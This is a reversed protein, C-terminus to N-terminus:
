YRKSYAPLAYLILAGLNILTYVTVGYSGRTLPLDTTNIYERLIIRADLSPKNKEINFEFKKYKKIDWQLEDSIEEYIADGSRRMKDYFILFILSVIFMTYIIFKIQEKPFYISNYSMTTLELTISFATIIAIYLGVLRLRLTITKLRKLNNYVSDENNIIISNNNKM